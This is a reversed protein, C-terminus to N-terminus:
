FMNAICAQVFEFPAESWFHVNRKWPVSIYVKREDEKERVLYSIYVSQVEIITGLYYSYFKYSSLHGCNM